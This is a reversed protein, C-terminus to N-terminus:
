DVKGDEEDAHTDIAEEVIACVHKAIEDQAQGELCIIFVLFPETM